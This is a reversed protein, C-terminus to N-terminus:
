TMCSFTHWVSIKNNIKNDSIFKLNGGYVSKMTKFNILINLKQLKRRDIEKLLKLKINYRM